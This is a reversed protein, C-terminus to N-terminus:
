FTKDVIKVKIFSSHSLLDSIESKSIPLSADKALFSTLFISFLEPGPKFVKIDKYSKKNLGCLTTGNV